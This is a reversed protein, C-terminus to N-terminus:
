EGSSLCNFCPLCTSENLIGSCWHGCGLMKNCADKLMEQCESYNCVGRTMDADGRLPNTCFRCKSSGVGGFTFSIDTNSSSSPLNANTATSMEAGIEAIGSLKACNFLILLNSLRLRTCGEHVDVKPCLNSSGVLKAIHSKKRKNLHLVSFCEHCLFIDCAECHFRAFTVGDDHNECFNEPEENRKAKLTRWTSSMELWSPDKIPILASISLWFQPSKLFLIAKSSNTSQDIPAFPSLFDNSSSSPPLFGAAALLKTLAM